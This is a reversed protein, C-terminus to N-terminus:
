TATCAEFFNIIEYNGGKPISQKVEKLVVIGTSPSSGHKYEEFYNKQKDNFLDGYFDYLM